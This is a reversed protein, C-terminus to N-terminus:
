FGVVYTGKTVGEYALALSIVLDDHFGRAANYTIKGTATGEIQYNDFEVFLEPDDLIRIERKQIALILNDIIKRKSDNTTVFSVVNTIVRNRKLETKLFDINSKGMSNSEAVIKTPKYKVALDVIAKIIVTTDGSNVYWLDILQKKSDLISVATYDGGNLQSWDIGFTIAGTPVPNDLVCDLYGTFLTDGSDLFQGLYYSKFKHSPITQRYFEIKEPTLVKSTDYKCWDHTFVNPSDGLGQCYFGYFLGSKRQPTSTMVIPCRHVDVYPLVATIKEDSIYAAEDIILLGGPGDCTFGQLAEITMEGSIFLLESNNRFTIIKTSENSKRYLPTKLIADRLENFIKASQKLTPSMLYITSKGKSVAYLVLQELLVSKGVQRQAKIVHISDKWHDRISLLADYQWRYLPVSEVSTTNNM